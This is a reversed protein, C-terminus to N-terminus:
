RGAAVSKTNPEGSATSSLMYVAFTALWHEGMYNGSAVHPLAAEAHKVAAALLVPRAPDGPPLAEAIGRLCWARSLNLGDLHVLKPDSRDGVTAPELLSSNGGAAIRPLFKHFWSAFAVTSLVRHMLDAEELAPSLFDEGGPEWSAPYDTDKGYYDQSRHALLLGFNRDGVAQAYDWAFALGFATNPHVGTRIPYTQKPLFDTLRAVIANALPVMNAFWRRADPDEWTRLEATLKLAWAWGYTREFSQSLPRKFYDAEAQLNAKSLNQNLAARIQADNKLKPFLRLLRVLMWHGHVSSHWDFCGYFAPHLRRPSLVDAPGNMVHDLKNPYQRRICKLALAAFHSAEERTLKPLEPTNAAKAPAALGPSCALALLLIVSKAKKRVSARATCRKAHFRIM